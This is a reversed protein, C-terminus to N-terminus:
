GGVLHAEPEDSMEPTRDRTLRGLLRMVRQEFDQPTIRGKTLFETSAGLRLRERDAEDLERVTYVVMPLTSLREHRRLWDVVEFGDPEPLGLDLVLLDPLVQQSLEIAKRGDAALFTEIGHREFTATLVAGLDRDDEVILVHHRGM